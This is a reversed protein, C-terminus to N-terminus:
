VLDKNLSCGTCTGVVVLVVIIIIVTVVIVVVVAAEEVFSSSCTRPVLFKLRRLLFLLLCRYTPSKEV